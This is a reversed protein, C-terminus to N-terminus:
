CARPNRRSAPRPFRPCSWPKRCRKMRGRSDSPTPRITITPGWRKPSEGSLWPWSLTSNAPANFRRAAEDHNFAYIYRLGQDFFKQAQPNKTSVPHHLNGLGNVLTIARAKPAPAHAHEQALSAVCLITAGLIFTLIRM